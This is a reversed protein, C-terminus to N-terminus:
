QEKCDPKSNTSLTARVDMLLQGLFNLGEWDASNYNRDDDIALGSGLVRDYFTAYIITSTGTSFLKNYAAENQSFKAMLGDFMIKGCASHWDQHNYNNPIIERLKRSAKELMALEHGIYDRFYLCRQAVMFQDLSRYRVKGVYFPSFHANSLLSYGTSFLTHTETTEEFSKGAFSAREQSGAMKELSEVKVSRYPLRIVYTAKM